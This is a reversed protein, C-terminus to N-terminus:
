RDKERLFRKVFERASIEIAGLSVALARRNATLDYHPWREHPQFWSRLLQLKRAFVHLEELTDATMHCARGYRWRGSVPYDRLEDVYVTM